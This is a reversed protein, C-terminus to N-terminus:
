PLQPSIYDKFFGIPNYKNFDAKVKDLCEKSCIALNEWETHYEPTDLNEFHKGCVLCDSKIM